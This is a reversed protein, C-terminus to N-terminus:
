PCAGPAGCDLLDASPDAGCAAAPSPIADGHFLAGLLAIPDTIQLAGDDNVDCADRCGLPPGAIFQWDLFRVVDALDRNGDDNCDGRLFGDSEVRVLIAWDATPDSPPSGLAVSGPGSVMSVTGPLLPGGNRPDFWAVSFDGAPLALSTTGGQPLYIAYVQGPLALCHDTGGSTLSSAPNMQPFPLHDRFFELAFRTLDWLHDRSRWDECDRDGNPYNFGFYWESGSGGAMLNGWLGQTRPLDHWYDNADPVVGTGAPGNEDNCIVWPRGAATSELVWFETADHVSALSGHYSIGEFDPFGLLPGYVQDYQGQNSHVVVPHDYPDLRHLHQSFQRRQLDTNTNEEGLNWVVALHHAMRAVLERHYLKREPGLDGGDLLQDNETEQLVGHLQIGVADMHSFVIEWQDLKSVDYRMRETPGIWPWVDHGDGQVNMTLFFVSNMGESSLYNLAGIIERGMGSRWEPDGPNWDGAHPAYAHLFTGDVDYTGDFDEYALFNEPSDAGGKLFSRGSGAFRLYREGVYELMGEGRFDPLLKDSPLVDFTGSAGHVLPEADGAGPEDAIAVDTGSRFLATYSWTGTRDPAFHVRWIGGSDAGSEAADGDAAYFGPVIVSRDGETFVVDLRLDLFPNPTANESTQPGAFDISVRHWLRLEGSITGPPTGGPISAVLVDSSASRGLDDIATLRLECVAGAALGDVTPALTDAGAIALPPGSLQTWLVSAVTGDRDSASGQLVVSTAPEVAFRAPGADVVPALNGPPGGTGSTITFSVSIAPGAAGTADPGSYPTATITHTGLPANWDSYNSGSNGLLAYPASNEIRHDPDGDLGFLVSGITSPLTNARVNLTTTGLGTLDIVAGDVLPGIDLDSDSDILTFGSVSQGALPTVGAAASLLALAAVPGFPVSRARPFSLLVSMPHDEPCDPRLTATVASASDTM